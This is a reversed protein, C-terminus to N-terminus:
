AIARSAHRTNVRVAADFAAANLLCLEDISLSPEAVETLDSRLLRGSRALRWPKQSAIVVRAPWVEGVEHMREETSPGYAILTPPPVGLRSLALAFTHLGEVAWRWGDSNRFPSLHVAVEQPPCERFWSAWRYLDRENRWCVSPIASGRLALERAIEASRKLAILGDLPTHSWWTSFAPGVVTEFLRALVPTLSGRAKWLRELHRDSGMLLAVSSTALNPDSRGVLRMATEIEVGLVSGHPLFRDAKVVVLSSEVPLSGWANPPSPFRLQGRARKSSLLDSPHISDASYVSQHVCSSATFAEGCLKKV